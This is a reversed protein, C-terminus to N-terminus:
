HKRLKGGGYMLAAGGALGVVGGAAGYALGHGGSEKQSEDVAPENDYIEYGGVRRMVEDIDHVQDGTEM